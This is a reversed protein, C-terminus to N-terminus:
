LNLVILIRMKIRQSNDKSSGNLSLTLAFSNSLISIKPSIEVYLVSM